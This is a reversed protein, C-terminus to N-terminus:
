GSALIDETEGIHERMLLSAQSVDGQRLVTVLRRHQDNARTLREGPHATLTIVECMDGHTETMAVVLRPSHAAQAVGIHFRVDARRYDDFTKAAEMCEVAEDLLDLDASQAREAALITAGMEIAVRQDLVAWV